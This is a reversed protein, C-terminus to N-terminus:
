FFAKKYFKLIPKRIVKEYTCVSYKLGIERGGVERGGGGSSEGEV